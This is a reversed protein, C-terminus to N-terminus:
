GHVAAEPLESRHLRLAIALGVLFLGFVIAYGGLLLLLALTGTIPRAALLTGFALSALGAAALLWEGAIEKRLRIAAVIEFLGTILAWFAMVYILALATIGPWLWAAVGVAFGFIGELWLPALRLGRHRYRVATSTALVGDIIAYTGYLLVLAALTAGPWLLAVVGFGLSTVGRLAVIWWNRKLQELM